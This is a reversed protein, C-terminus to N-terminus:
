TGFTELWLNVLLLNSPAGVIVKRMKEFAVIEALKGAEDNDDNSFAAVFAKATEKIKDFQKKNM